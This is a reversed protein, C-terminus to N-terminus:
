AQQSQYDGAQYYNKGQLVSRLNRGPNSTFSLSLPGPAQAVPEGVYPM